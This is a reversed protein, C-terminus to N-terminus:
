TAAAVRQLLRGAFWALFPVALVTAASVVGAGPSFRFVVFPALVAADALPLGALMASVRRRIAPSGAEHRAWLSLAVVWAALLVSLLWLAPINRLALGSVAAGGLWPLLARCLAIWGVSWPASKHIWTYVLASGAILSAIAGARISLAFSAGIGTAAAALGMGLLVGPRWAGSPLARQPYRLADWARDRWDNLLNGSVLLLCGAAAAVLVRAWPMASDAASWGALVAGAAVHSVVSPANAVRASALLKRTRERRTV